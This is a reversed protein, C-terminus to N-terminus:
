GEPQILEYGSEDWRMFILRDSLQMGDNMKEFPYYVYLDYVGRHDKMYAEDVIFGQEGFAMPAAGFADIGAPLHMTDYENTYYTGTELDYYGEWKVGAYKESWIRNVEKPLDSLALTGATFDYAYIDTDKGGSMLLKGNAFGYLTGATSREMECLTSVGGSEKHWLRLYSPFQKMYETYDPREREEQTPIHSMYVVAMGDNAGQLAILEQESRILEEEEGTSLDYKMLVYYADEHFYSNDDGVTVKDVAMSYYLDGYAYAWYNVQASTSSSNHQEGLLALKQLGTGDQNRAYLEYGFEEYVVYYVKKDHYFLVEVLSDIYADCTRLDHGCGAKNCLPVSYGTVTDTYYLCANYIFFFGGDVIVCPFQSSAARTVWGSSPLIEPKAAEIWETGGDTRGSSVPVKNCAALSLCLLVAIILSLGKKM